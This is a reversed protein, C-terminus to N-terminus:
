SKRLPLMNTSLCDSSGAAVDTVLLSLRNCSCKLIYLALVFACVYYQRSGFVIINFLCTSPLHRLALLLVKKADQLTSGSMSNSLDLVFVVEFSNRHGEYDSTSEFEPYFALMCAKLTCWVILSENQLISHYYYTFITAWHAATIEM